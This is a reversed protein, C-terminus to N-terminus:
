KRKYAEWGDVPPSIDKRLEGLTTQKGNVVIPLNNVNEVKSAQIEINQKSGVGITSNATSSRVILTDNEKDYDLLVGSINSGGEMAEKDTDYLYYGGETPLDSITFTGGFSYLSSRIEGGYNLAGQRLKGIPAVVDVGGWKITKGGDKSSTSTAIRTAKGAPKIDQGEKWNKDIYFKLIPNEQDRAPTSGAQREAEDVSGSGDVDLYKDKEAQSLASWQELMHRKVRPNNFVEEVIVPAIEDRTGTTNISDQFGPAGKTPVTTQVTTGIKGKLGRLINSIPQGKPLIPSKNYGKVVGNEDKEGNLYPAEKTEYFEQSSFNTDADKTIMAKELMYQEMDTKMRNQESILYNKGALIKAQAEGSLREFGGSAKVIAASSDNYEKILRNSADQTATTLFAM